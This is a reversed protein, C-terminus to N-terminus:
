QTEHVVLSSSYYHLCSKMLLELLKSLELYSGPFSIKYHSDQKKEILFPEYSLHEITAMCARRVM